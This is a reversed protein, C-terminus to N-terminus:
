AVQRAPVVRLSFLTAEEPSAGSPNALGRDIARLLPEVLVARHGDASELADYPRSPEDASLDALIEAPAM